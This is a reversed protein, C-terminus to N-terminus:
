DLGLEAKLAKFEEQMNWAASDWHAELMAPTMVDIDLRRRNWAPERIVSEWLRERTAWEEDSVDEPRDTNNWYGYKETWDNPEQLVDLLRPLAGGGPKSLDMCLINFNDEYPNVLWTGEAEWLGLVAKMNWIDGEHRFEQATFMLNVYRQADPPHWPRTVSSLFRPAILPPCRQELEKLMGNLDELNYSRRCLHLYLAKLRSEITPALTDKLWAAFDIPQKGPKLKLGYYIKTSM